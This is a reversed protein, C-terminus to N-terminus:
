KANVDFIQLDYAYSKNGNFALTYDTTGKITEEIVRFDTPKIDINEKTYIAVMLHAGIISNRKGKVTYVSQLRSYISERAVRTTARNINVDFIHVYGKQSTSVQFNIKENLSYRASDLKIDIDVNALPTDSSAETKQINTAEAPIIKITLEKNVVTKKGKSYQSVLVEEPVSLGKTLANESPLTVKSLDLHETSIILTITEYGNQPMSDVKFLRFQHKGHFRKINNLEEEQPYVVINKKSKKDKYASYFYYPRTADINVYIYEGVRYVKKNTYVENFELPTRSLLLLIIIIAIIILLSFRVIGKHKLSKKFIRFFRLLFDLVTVVLVLIILSIFLPSEIWIGMQDLFQKIDLEFM